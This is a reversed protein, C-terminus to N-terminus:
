PVQRQKKMDKQGIRHPTLITRRTRLIFSFESLYHGQSRAEPSLTARLVHPEPAPQRWSIFLPHDSLRYIEAWSASLKYVMFLLHTPVPMPCTQPGKLDKQSTNNSKNRDRQLSAM